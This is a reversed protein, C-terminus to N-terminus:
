VSGQQKGTWESILGLLPSLILVRVLSGLVSLSLVGGFRWCLIKLAREPTILCRVAAPIFIHGPVEGGLVWLTRGHM